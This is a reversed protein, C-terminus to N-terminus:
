RAKLLLHYAHREVVEYGNAVLYPEMYLFYDQFPMLVVIYEYHGVVEKGIYKADDELNRHHFHHLSYATKGKFVYDFIYRDTGVVAYDLGQAELREIEPLTQYVWESGGGPRYRETIGSLHPYRGYDFTLGNTNFTIMAVFMALAALAALGVFRGLVRRYCDANVHALLLPITTLAMQRELFGDSGVAAVWSCGVIILLPLWAVAVRRQHTANYLLPLFFVVWFYSEFLGAPYVAQTMVFRQSSVSMAAVLLICAAWAARRWRRLRVLFCACAFCCIMPYYCNTVTLLLYKWRYDIWEKDFHGNIVNDPNWADVYAEVSGVMLLILALAVAAFAALGVACDGVAARWGAARRVYVIVGLILPLAALTPVRSLAMAAAAAGVLAIRGASPREGYLLLTLAALTMWPYAGADWGYLWMGSYRFAVCMTMFVAATLLPRRLRRYMYACAMAVSAQYCLAMLWRLHLLENGFLKLWLNGVYFSLMALPSEEYHLVCLAQYASDRDYVRCGLGVYPLVLGAVLLAVALVGKHRRCNNLLKNKDM